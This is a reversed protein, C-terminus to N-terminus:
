IALAWPPAEKVRSKGVLQGHSPPQSRSPVAPTLATQSASLSVRCVRCPCFSPCRRLSLLRVSLAERPTGSSATKLRTGVEGPVARRERGQGLGASSPRPERPSGM